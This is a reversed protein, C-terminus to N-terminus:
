LAMGGSMFCSHCLDLNACSLCRFRSGVVPFQLGLKLTLLLAHNFHSCCGLCTKNCATNTGGGLKNWPPDGSGVVVVAVM